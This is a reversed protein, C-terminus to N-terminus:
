PLTGNRPQSGPQSADGVVSHELREATELLNPDNFPRDSFGAATYRQTVYANEVLRNKANPMSTTTSLAVFRLVYPGDMAKEHLILGYFTLPIWQVGPALRAAHQAWAIPQGDQTYLTAELHFRGEAAVELEARIELNGDVVTDAYHGTLQADPRSYLFGTTAYRDQGDATTAHVRVLYSGSPAGGLAEPALTATYIADGAQADAGSGDDVYDVPALPTGQATVVAGEIRRAPVPQDQVSLYAYLVAADPQEFSVKDAFVVLAPDAGEPGPFRNASVARDRLIPDDAPDGIPRSWRPFRAQQRYEQAAVAALNPREAPAAQSAPTPAVPTPPLQAPPTQRGRRAAAAALQQGDRERPSGTVPATSRQRLLVFIAVVLVLAVLAATVLTRWRTM